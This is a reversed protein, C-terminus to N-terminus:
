IIQLEAKKLARYEANKIKIDEAHTIRYQAIYIKQQDTHTIRYEANKIKKHEAHAIYYQKAYEKKTIDDIIIIDSIFPRNKNICPMSQMYHSERAKLENLNSCSYDEILEISIIADPLFMTRSVCTNSQKKHCALRRRLEQCSSGIYIADSINSILKYIKGKSYDIM